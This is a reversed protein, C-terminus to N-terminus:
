KAAALADPLTEFSPIISIFGSIQFAEKVRSRPRALCLKGNRAKMKKAASLIIRLGASSIYDLGELDFVLSAGPQEFWRTLREELEPSTIADLQGIVAFVAVNSETTVNIDM